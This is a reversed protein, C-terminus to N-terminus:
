DVIDRNFTVTAPDGYFCFVGSPVRYIFSFAGGNPGKEDIGRRWGSMRM